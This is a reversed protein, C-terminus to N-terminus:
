FSLLCFTLWLCVAMAIVLIVMECYAVDDCTIPSIRSFRPQSTSAPFAPVNLRSPHPTQERKKPVPSSLRPALGSCQTQPTPPPTRPKSLPQTQRSQTVRPNGGERDRGGGQTRFANLSISAFSNRFGWLCKVAFATIAFILLVFISIFLNRYPMQKHVNIRSHTDLLAIQAHSFTSVRDLKLENLTGQLRTPTPLVPCSYDKLFLIEREAQQSNVHPEIQFQDGILKCNDGLTVESLGKPIKISRTSAPCVENAVVDTPSTAIWTKGNNLFYPSYSSKLLFPCDAEASTSNTFLSILCNHVSGSTSRSIPTCVTLSRSDVCNSLDPLVAFLKLDTRAALFKDETQLKRSWTGNSFPHWVPTVKFLDFDQDDSKLPIRVFFLFKTGSKQVVVKSIDYFFPLYKFTPPRLLSVEDQLKGLISLFEGPPLFLPSVRLTQIQGEIATIIKQVESQIDLAAFSLFNLSQALVIDTRLSAMIEDTKRIHHTLGEMATQVQAAANTLRTLQLDTVSLHSIIKNLVTHTNSTESNVQKVLDELEEDTILGLTTATLYGLLNSRKERTVEGGKINASESFTIAFDVFDNITINISEAIKLSEHQFKSALPDHSERAIVAITAARKSLLQLQRLVQFTDFSLALTHTKASFAVKGHTAFVVGKSVLTDFTCIGKFVVALLLLYRWCGM